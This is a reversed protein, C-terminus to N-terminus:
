PTMAMVTDVAQKLLLQGFPGSKEPHFQFGLIHGAQVAACFSGGYDATYLVHRPNQPQAIFSNVFYVEGTPWGPQDTTIRNWGTQPIKLGLTSQFRVVNGPLLGLGPVGPNEESHEFLIHQGLCIGLYPTGQQVFQTIPQVLQHRHLLSMVAGFAGVGPLVIPSQSTLQSAETIVRYPVGLRDFARQVSGLNGGIMGILQLM